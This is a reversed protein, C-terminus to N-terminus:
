HENFVFEMDCHKRKFVNRLLESRQPTEPNSLGLCEVIMAPYTQSINSTESYIQDNGMGAVDRADRARLCKHTEM